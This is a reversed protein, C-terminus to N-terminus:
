AAAEETSTAPGSRSRAATDLRGPDEGGLRDGRRAHRVLLPLLRRAVGEGRRYPGDTVLAEGDRVRVSTAAATSELESADVFQREGARTRSRRYRAYM